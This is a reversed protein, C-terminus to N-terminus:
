FNGHFGNLNGHHNQLARFNKVYVNCQLSVYPFWIILNGHYGYFNGVYAIIIHPFSLTGFKMPESKTGASHADAM